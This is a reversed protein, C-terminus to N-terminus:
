KLKKIQSHWYFENLTWKDEAKYFSFTWILPSNKCKAIYEFLILSKSINTQRIFEYGIFEGFRESLLSLQKKTGKEVVDIEKDPLWTYKKIEEFALDLKGQGINKMIKETKEKLENIETIGVVNSIDSFNSKQQEKRTEFLISQLKKRDSVEVSEKYEEEACGILLLVFVVSIINKKM